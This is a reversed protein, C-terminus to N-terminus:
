IGVLRLDSGQNSKINTHFTLMNIVEATVFSAIVSPRKDQSKVTGIPCILKETSKGKYNENYWKIFKSRKTRSGIMGVYNADARDLAAASLIFDLSHNHTLIVYASGKPSLKIDREPIASLRKEVGAKCKLLEFSRSDVLICKVPLYQLQLALARGVHGAGMIYVHPLNNNINEFAALTLQMDKETMINLYVEVKGGCCQDIEPGLPIKLTDNNIMESLMNRAHDIILYELQGGGITGWTDTKSIFMKTDENRPTSGYAKTLNVQVIIKDRLFFNQLEKIYKTM